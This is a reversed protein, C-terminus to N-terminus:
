SVSGQNVGCEERADAEEHDFDDEEKRTAAEAAKRAIPCDRNQDLSSSALFQSFLQQLLRVLRFCRM